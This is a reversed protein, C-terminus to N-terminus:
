RKEEKNKRIDKELAYPADIRFIGTFTVPNKGNGTLNSIAFLSKRVRISPNPLIKLYKM